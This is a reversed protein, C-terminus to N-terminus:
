EARAEQNSVLSDLEEPGTCFMEGVSAKASLVARILAKAVIKLSMDQNTAVRFYPLSDTKDTTGRKFFGCSHDRHRHKSRRHHKVSYQTM